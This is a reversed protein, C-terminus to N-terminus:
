NFAPPSSPIVCGSVRIIQGATYNGAECCRRLPLGQVYQSIFGGVFADGAGNTDVIEESPVPPVDVYVTPEGAECVITRESGQTIVCVRKKGGQKPLEAIMRAVAEVDKTDSAAGYAAAESENGFVIDVYPMAEAIGAGFFQPIFPASLNIAVTKNHAYAHRCITMISPQSVTFFFGSMYYFSAGQWVRSVSEVQLHSENFNNAAGLNACLSREKDKVLVACTGTAAKADRMYHEGVGDAQLCKSLQEGFADNGICGLFNTSGPPLMWQAVRISNQTAGGAVYLPNRSKLDEYLPLHKEEALIANNMVLGYRDLEEQTTDASIDLLPNCLGCVVGSLSM